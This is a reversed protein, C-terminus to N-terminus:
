YGVMRQKSLAPCKVSGRNLRNGTCSTLLVALLIISVVQKVVPMRKAFRVLANRGQREVTVIEAQGLAQLVTNIKSWTFGQRRMRKVIDKRLTRYILQKM